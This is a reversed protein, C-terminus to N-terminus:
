FPLLGTAGTIFGVVAMLVVFGSVTFGEAPTFRRTGNHNTAVIVAAAVAAIVCGTWWVLAYQKLAGTLAACVMILGCLSGTAQRATM